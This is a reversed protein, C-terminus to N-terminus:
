LINNDPIDEVIPDQYNPRKYETDGITMPMILSYTKQEEIKGHLEIPTGPNHVDIVLTSDKDLGKLLELLLTVNVGIRITPDTKPIIQEYEPYTGGQDQIDLINEGARVKGTNKLGELEGLSRPAETINLRWGDVCVMNGKHFYTGTLVPRADDTGKASQVWKLIKSDSRDLKIMTNDQPTNELQGPVKALNSELKEVVPDQNKAAAMDNIAKAQDWADKKKENRAISELDRLLQAGLTDNSLADYACQEPPVQDEMADYYMYDAIDHIGIGGTIKQCEIDVKGMYVEIKTSSKTEITM